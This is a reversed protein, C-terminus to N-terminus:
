GIKKSITTNFGGLTDFRKKFIKYYPKSSDFYPHGSPSFRWLYCMAERSLSNIKNVEKEDIEM